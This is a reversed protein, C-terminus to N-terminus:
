FYQLSNLLGVLFPPKLFNNQASANNRPLQWSPIVITGLVFMIRFAVNTVKPKKKLFKASPAQWKDNNRYMGGKASNADQDNIPQSFNPEHETPMHSYCNKVGLKSYHWFHIRISHQIGKFCYVAM